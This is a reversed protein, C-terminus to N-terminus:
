KGRRLRLVYVAYIIGLTAAFAFWQVAYAMHNNSITEPSPPALRLLPVPATELVLVYRPGKGSSRVLTGTMETPRAPPWYPNMLTWGDPRDSWGTEVWLDGGAARCLLVTSFGARGDVSKGSRGNPLQDPCDVDLRIRRFEMDDTLREPRDLAPMDARAELRALLDTKWDARHLQWFGLGIMVPVMAAVMLTPLLPLRM